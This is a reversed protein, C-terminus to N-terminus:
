ASDDPDACAKRELTSGAATVLATAEEITKWRSQKGIHNKLGRETSYWGGCSCLFKPHPEQHGRCEVGTCIESGAAAHEM